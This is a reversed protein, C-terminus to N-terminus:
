AVTANLNADLVSFPAMFTQRENAGSNALAKQNMSGKFVSVKKGATPNTGPTGYPIYVLHGTTGRVWLNWGQDTPDDRFMELKCDFGYTGPIKGDVLTGLNSADVDNTNTNPQWGNKTLLFTLETGAAIEAATPSAINSITAVFYVQATNDYVRQTM